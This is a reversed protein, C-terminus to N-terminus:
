KSGTYKQFLYGVFAFFIGSVLFTFIVVGAVDENPNFYRLSAIIGAAVLGGFVLGGIVGKKAYKGTVEYAVGAVFLVLGFFMFATWPWNWGEVYINGLLPIALIALTVILPRLITTKNNLNSLKM